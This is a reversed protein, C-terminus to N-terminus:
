KSDNSRLFRTAESPLILLSLQTAVIKNLYRVLIIVGRHRSHLTM